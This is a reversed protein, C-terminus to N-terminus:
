PKRTGFWTLDGHRFRGYLTALFGVVILGAQVIETVQGEELDFKFLASLSLVVSVVSATYTLSFNKM